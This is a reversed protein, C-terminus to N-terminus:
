KKFILCPKHAKPVDPVVRYWTTIIYLSHWRSFLFLNQPSVCILLVGTRKFCQPGLVFSLETITYPFSDHCLAEKNPNVYQFYIIFSWIGNNTVIKNTIKNDCISHMGEMCVPGKTVFVTGSTM